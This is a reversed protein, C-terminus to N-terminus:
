GIIPYNDVIGNKNILIVRNYKIKKHFLCNVGNNIKEKDHIVIKYGKGIFFVVANDITEGKLEPWSYITNKNKNYINTLGNHIITNSFHNGM